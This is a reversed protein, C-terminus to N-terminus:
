LPAHFVLPSQRATIGVHVQLQQICLFKDVTFEGPEQPFYQDSAVINEVDLRRFILLINTSVFTTFVRGHFLSKSTSFQHWSKLTKPAITSEAISVRLPLILKRGLIIVERLCKEQLTQQKPTM